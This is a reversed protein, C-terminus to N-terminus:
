PMLSRSLTVCLLVFFLLGGVIIGRFVATAIGIRDERRKIQETLAAIERDVAKIERQIQELETM